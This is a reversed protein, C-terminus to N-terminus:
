KSEVKPTWGLRDDNRDMRRVIADMRQTIFGYQAAQVRNEAATLTLILWTSLAGVLAVLYASDKVLSLVKAFDFRPLAKNTADQTMVMSLIQDLKAGQTTQVTTLTQMASTLGGLRNETSVAHQELKDLRGEAPEM